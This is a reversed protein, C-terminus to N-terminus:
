LNVRIGKMKFIIDQALENPTISYHSFEMSMNARGSTLSRLSTIYGFTEGLPIMAKVATSYIQAEIGTIEGRRRNIDGTVDGVYEEPTDVELKMIPELLNSKIKRSAEKFAITGCIEFALADSESSMVADILEVKACFVPYGAMVGTGMAAKIGKEVAAVFEKSLVSAKTSNIFQLGKQDIPAPSVIIEIEAFRGRGGAQKRYAERHSITAGIAERYAVQPKGLTCDVKSERKLRDVIIDLHLEGMGSIITQGTEDDQRITFTPDEEAIKQLSANLKDLDNQTKPEIAISVVPEPFDMSELVIPHKEDCLTDGTHINKLGIIACIDGAEITELPNQKNSHMRILRSVREKQETCSNYVMVGSQLSGSYVRTFALRGVYPDNAIKFVLACFPAEVANSRSEKEETKPNFGEIEEMEVPSPLYHIVGDLLTQVGKNKFSSGCFVPFARSELTAKRLQKRIDDGSISAPNEMYRELLEPDEEAAGEILKLRYEEVVKLMDEPVPIESYDKGLSEDDWVYAKNEVLDVVGTFGDEVGIPLQVVIPNARLKERIQTVVRLFDAGQRDMKNVYCIRPVRYHNAQRWVTESQPQVAGVACFVAIAGDLVRLSREVEVTFDVHGPTDIVNVQYKENNSVWYVTTAASTITIGREQEQIMWDMTAAGDDVEGIEYNIGSYYLIRETTTTKGADIHAMIGINRIQTLVTM